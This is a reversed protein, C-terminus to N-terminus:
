PRRTEAGRGVGLLGRGVLREVGRAQSAVLGYEGPARPATLEVRFRGRADARVLV